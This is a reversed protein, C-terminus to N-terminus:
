SHMAGKGKLQIFEYVVHHPPPYNFIKESIVKGTDWSSGAAAH